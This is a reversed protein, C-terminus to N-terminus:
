SMAVAPRVIAVLNRHRSSNGSAERCRWHVWQRQCELWWKGIPLIGSVQSTLSIQTVAGLCWGLCFLLFIILWAKQKPVM